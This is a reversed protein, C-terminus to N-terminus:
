TPPPAVGFRKLHDDCDKVRTKSLPLFMRRAQQVLDIAKAPEASFLDDAECVLWIAEHYLDGLERAIEAAERFHAIALTTNGMVSHLIGLNGITRGESRKDGHERAIEISGKYDRLARHLLKRGGMRKLFMNKRVIAANGICIGIKEVEGTTRAIKEAQKYYRLASQYM